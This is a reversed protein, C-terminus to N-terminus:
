RSQSSRDPYGYIDPYRLRPRVWEHEHDKRDSPLSFDGYEIAPYERFLRQAQLLGLLLILGFSGAALATRLRM